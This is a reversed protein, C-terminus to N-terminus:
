ILHQKLTEEAGELNEGAHLLSRTTGLLISLRAGMAQFEVHELRSYNNAIQNVVTVIDDLYTDLLVQGGPHDCLSKLASYKDVDKSIEELVDRDLYPNDKLAKQVRRTATRTM